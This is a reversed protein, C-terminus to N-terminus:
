KTEGKTYNGQKPKKMAERAGTGTGSQQPAPVENGPHDRVTVIPIAPIWKGSVYKAPAINEKKVIQQPEDNVRVFHPKTIDDPQSTNSM